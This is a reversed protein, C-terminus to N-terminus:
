WALHVLKTNSNSSKHPSHLTFGHIIHVRLVISSISNLFLWDSQCNIDRGKRWIIVEAPLCYALTTASLKSSNGGPFAILPMDRAIAYNNLVITSIYFLYWIAAMGDENGKISLFVYQGLWAVDWCLHFPKDQWKWVLFLFINLIAKPNRELAKVLM